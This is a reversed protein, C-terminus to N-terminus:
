EVLDISLWDINPRKTENDWWLEILHRGQELTVTLSEVDWDTWSPGTPSFPLHINQDVDDVYLSGSRNSNAGNSYRVTLRYSGSVPLPTNGINFVIGAPDGKSDQPSDFDAYGSGCFGSHRSNVRSNHLVTQSEDDADIVQHEPSTTTPCRENSGSSNNNDENLSSPSSPFLVDDLEPNLLITMSSPTGQNTTIMVMSPPYNLLHSIDLIGTSEGDTATKGISTKDRGDPRMKWIGGEGSDRNVFILDNKTWDVNDPQQYSRFDYNSIMAMEFTSERKKFNTRGNEEKTFKMAFDVIYVGSNSEALVAQRGNNPNTDIDEFKSMKIAADESTVFGGRWTRENGAQRVNGLYFWEGYMLGNRALFSSSPNGENDYGKKGVYLMLTESGGDASLMLAVHETEGTDLLAANEFSDFPFGGRGGAARSNGTKGSLQYMRRNTLDLVMLRGRSCEEGTIYLRDAFGRNPGFTNPEYSQSSCFRCFNSRTRWTRGLDPSWEDFARRASVVFDINGDGSDGNVMFKNRIVQQLRETRIDIESITADSGELEHNVQIKVTSSSKKYAGIGDMKSLMRWDNDSDNGTVREGETIVEISKWGNETSVMPRRRDNLASTASLVMLLLSLSLLKKMSLGHETYLLPCM